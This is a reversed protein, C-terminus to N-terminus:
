SLSSANHIFNFARNEKCKRNPQNAFRQTLKTRQRVARRGYESPGLRWPVRRGPIFCKFNRSCQDTKKHESIEEAGELRRWRWRCIIQFNTVVVVVVLRRLIGVTGILGVVLRRLIGVTGILGYVLAFASAFLFCSFPM